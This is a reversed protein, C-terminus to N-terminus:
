IMIVMASMLGVVGYRITEEVGLEIEKGFLRIKFIGESKIIADGGFLVDIAFITFTAAWYPAWNERLIPIIVLTVGTLLGITGRTLIDAYKYNQKCLNFFFRGITSGKDGEPSPIGYGLSFPAIMLLIFIVWLNHIFLLSLLFLYIPIGLRRIFKPYKHAGGLAGLFGTILGTIVILLIKFFIM